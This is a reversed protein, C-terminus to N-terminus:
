LGRVEIIKKIIDIFNDLLFNDNDPKPFVQKCEHILNGMLMALSGSAVIYEMAINPFNNRNKKFFKEMGNSLSDFLEQQLKLMIEHEKTREKNEM